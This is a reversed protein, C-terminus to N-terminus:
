YFPKGKYKQHQRHRQLNMSRGAVTIAQAPCFNYCRYCATCSESFTFNADDYEIAHTPCNNVCELCKICRNEDVGLFKWNNRELPSMFLRQLGGFFYGFPNWRNQLFKEDNQILNVVKDLKKLTRQRRKAFRSESCPNYNFVPIGLNSVMQFNYAIKLNLNVRNLRKKLILAGDGSFLEMTTIVFSKKPYQSINSINQSLKEIFEKLIKPASSGYIPHAFGIWEAKSWKNNINSWDEPKLKEISYTEIENDLVMIRKKFQEVLWWTNGTGSFYFLIIQM